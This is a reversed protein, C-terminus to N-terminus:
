DEEFYGGDADDERMEEYSLEGVSNKLLENAELVLEEITKENLPWIIKDINGM